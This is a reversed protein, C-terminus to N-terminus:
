PTATVVVVATSSSGNTNTQTVRVTYQGDVAYRKTVTTATTIAGLNIEATGDGFNVRVSSPQTNPAPTITFAFTTTDFKGSTPSASITVSPAASVTVVTSAIEGTSGTATIAYSGPTSYVHSVSRANPVIGLDDTAGDGWSITVRSASNGSGVTPTVTLTVPTGATVTASSLSVAISNPVAVAVSVTGTVAGGTLRATVTAAVTTTLQVSAEGSDSTTETSSSLTGATTTFLVPVGRVRNGAADLVAATITTTGGGPPVTSPAASVTVNSAAAAGISIEILNTNGAGGGAAGSTARVQAVGSANGARLTTTAIGNSTQADAPEVTGLNTTFRVTTGNQVPTGGGEVVFASIEVSGGMPIARTTANVTITANTPAGLPVKDCATVAVLTLVAVSSRILM